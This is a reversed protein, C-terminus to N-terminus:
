ASHAGSTNARLGSNTPWPRVELGYMREARGDEMIRYVAWGGPAQAHHVAEIGCDTCVWIHTTRIHGMVRGCAPCAWRQPFHRRLWM